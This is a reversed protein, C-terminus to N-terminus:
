SALILVIVTYATEYRRPALAESWTARMRRAASHRRSTRGTLWLLQTGPRAALKAFGRHGRVRSLPESKKRPAM